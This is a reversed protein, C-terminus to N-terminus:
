DAEVDLLLRVAQCAGCRGAVALFVFDEDSEADAPYCAAVAVQFHFMRCACGVPTVEFPPREYDNRGRWGLRGHARPDYLSLDHGCSGCAADVVEWNYNVGVFLSTEGCRCALGFVALPGPHQGRLFLALDPAAPRAYPRLHEPRWDSPPPSV